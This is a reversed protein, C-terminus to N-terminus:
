IWSHCKSLSYGNLGIALLSTGSQGSASPMICLFLCRLLALNKELQLEPIKDFNAVYKTKNQNFDRLGHNSFFVSKVLFSTRFRHRCALGTQLALRFDKRKRQKATRSHDKKDTM